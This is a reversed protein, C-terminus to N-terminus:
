SVPDVVLIPILFILSGNEKVNASLPSAAWWMDVGAVGETKSSCETSAKDDMLVSVISIRLWEVGALASPTNLVQSPEVDGLTESINGMEDVSDVCVQSLSVLPDNDTSTVWTCHACPKLALVWLM